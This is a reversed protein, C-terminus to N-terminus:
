TLPTPPHEVTTVNNKALFDKALFLRTHQLTTTFGVPFGVSKEGNKMANGEPQM